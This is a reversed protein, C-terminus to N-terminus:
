GSTLQKLWIDVCADSPMRLDGRPSLSITGVKPSDPLCSRKFQQSFFRKLFTILWITITSKSYVGKFAVEALFLIKTPEAGYKLFHYLFFDHLEYPGVIDETKQAIQGVEDPPLLEPSIPTDIIKHLIQKSNKDTHNDAVWKVLHKVLTKPVGANVGYNSMHDGNYTCWGLALESMDGTGVVLGNVRSAYDMLIQTRERAQVNEFTLDHIDSSHGIAEFHRLCADKIDIEKIDVKLSKMLEIANNYTNETTGFGPMTIATINAHKLKMKEFAAVTVLLALTSDLGGSVGIVVNQCKVHQLRKMLGATQINFIEQCREDVQDKSSPVFPHPDVFRKLSAKENVSSDNKFEQSVEFETDRAYFPEGTTFTTNRLRESNLRQVDVDSFILSSQEFRQSEELFKGNECIGAYGGFVMDTTSEGPGASTFIYAAICRASQQSILNQRYIHKGITEDSASLNFLVNAGATALKSSQPIPSWLDECIEIAFCFETNNTCRFLLDNGFLTNQDLLQIDGETGEVCPTFWRKEYFESYQPLCTKGVVGLIQGSQIVVACNYLRNRNKLPAGVITIMEGVSDKESAKVIKYLNQLVSNQLTDTLFLDGCTYGSISLEPFVCIAAGGASAEKMQKVISNTNFICNAVKIDPVAAAIRVFGYNM